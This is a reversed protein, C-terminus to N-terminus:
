KRPRMIDALALREIMRRPRIAAIPATGRAPRAPRELDDLEVLPVMEITTTCADTATSAPDQLLADIEIPALELTTQDDRSPVACRCNCDRRWHIEHSSVM